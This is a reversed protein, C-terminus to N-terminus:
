RNIDVKALTVPDDKWVGLYQLIGRLKKKGAEISYNEQVFSLGNRSLYNWLDEECYLKAIGDAFDEPEDAVIIEKGSIFGAGEVAISSAVCPVGHAMSAGIKGKLGAGYRLPAISLRCRDFHESINEVYGVVVVDESSLDSLKQPVHSGIIYFKLEPLKQKVLPWIREVFYLVADVNPEHKYGGLFL